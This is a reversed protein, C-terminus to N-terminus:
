PIITQVVHSQSLPDTAWDVPLRVTKRAKNTFLLYGNDRGYCYLGKTVAVDQTCYEIIKDLKGQKWWTLAQLGDASKKEGLTSAGLHDLSLRYGLRQHV